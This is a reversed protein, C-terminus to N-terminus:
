TRVLRRRLVVGGINAALALGFVLAAPLAPVLPADMVLGLTSATMAGLEAAPAPNGLGLFSLLAVLLVTNALDLAAAVAVSPLAAPLLYRWLRPLLPVGALRVALYHSERRAARVQARVRRAYWPWGFLALTMTMTTLGPGFAAAAAIAMVPAPLARFVNVLRRLVFDAIGDGAGAVLGVLTGVSASALVVALSPLWTMGLGVLLRSLLDRGIDDTGLLAKLSPGQLPLDVRVAPYNPAFLPGLLSVLTIAALMLLALRAAPSAPARPPMGSM